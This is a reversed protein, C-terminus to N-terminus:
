DDVRYGEHCSKCVKFVAGGSAKLAELDQPNAAVAASTKEAFLALQEEFGEPDSWITAKAETDYGSDSGEPFLKGFPEASEAWVVLAQNAVAADFETEGKMMKGIKKAAGGVDEMLEQRQEQPSDGALAPLAPLILLLSAILAKSRIM